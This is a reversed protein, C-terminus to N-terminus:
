QTMVAGDGHSVLGNAIEGADGEGCLFVSCVWTNNYKNFASIGTIMIMIM